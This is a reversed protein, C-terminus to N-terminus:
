RAKDLLSQLQEKEETWKEQKLEFTMEAKKAVGELYARKEESIRLKVTLHESMSVNQDHATKLDVLTEKVREVKKELKIIKKTKEEKENALVKAIERSEDLAKVRQELEVQISNLRRDATYVDSKLNEIQSRQEDIQGDKEVITERLQAITSM